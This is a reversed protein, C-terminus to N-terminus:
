HLVFQSKFVLPLLQIRTSLFCIKTQSNIGNIHVNLEHNM